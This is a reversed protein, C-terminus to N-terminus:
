LGCAPPGSRQPQHGFRLHPPKPPTHAVTTRRCETAPEGSLRAAPAWGGRNTLSRLRAARIEATPSWVAPALATPPTHAVTARRCETAPEGSLRGAPAVRRRVAAHRILAEQRTRAASGRGPRAAQRGQGHP